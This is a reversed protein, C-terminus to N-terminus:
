LNYQKSKLILELDEKNPSFYLINKNKILRMDKYFYVTKIYNPINEYECDYINKIDESIIKGINNSIFDGLVISNSEDPKCLIYDGIQPTKKSAEYTKIHKM